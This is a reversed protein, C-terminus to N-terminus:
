SEGNGQVEELCIDAVINAQCINKIETIKYLSSNIIIKDTHKISQADIWLCLLMPSSKKRITSADSTEKPLHNGYHEGDHFVAKIGLLETGDTPENFKNKAYRIVVYTKGQTNIMRRVKNLQFAEANM